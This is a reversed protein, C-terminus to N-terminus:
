FTQSQTSSKVYVDFVASGVPVRGGFKYLSYIVCQEITNAAAFSIQSLTFSDKVEELRPHEPEWNAVVGIECTGRSWIGGDPRNGPLASWDIRADISPASHRLDYAAAICDSVQIQVASPLYHFCISNYTSITHNKPNATFTLLPLAFAPLILSFVVLLTTFM